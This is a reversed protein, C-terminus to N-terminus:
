GNGTHCTAWQGAATIQINKKCEIPAVHPPDRDLYPGWDWVRRPAISRLYSDDNARGAGECDLVRSAAGPAFADIGHDHVVPLTPDVSTLCMSRRRSVGPASVTRVKNTKIVFFAGTFPSTTSRTWILFLKPELLNRSPIPTIAQWSYRLGVAIPDPIITVWEISRKPGCAAVVETRGRMSTGVGIRRLARIFNGPRRFIVVHTNSAPCAM